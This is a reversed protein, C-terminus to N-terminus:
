PTFEEARVFAGPLACTSCKWAHGAVAQLAGSAGPEVGAAAQTPHVENWHGDDACGLVVLIM